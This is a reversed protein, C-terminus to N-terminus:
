QKGFYEELVAKRIKGKPAGKGTWAEFQRFGQLCLIEVGSVVGWGKRGEASQLLPTMYPRYAMDVVVGGGGGEGGGRGGLLTDPNFQIGETDPKTTLSDGPVTSVIISPQTPLNDLSSITQISYSTPFSSAVSEANAPTRNYLLIREAGLNHMAYIAARCTGGAGIVLATFSTLQSPTLHIQCAEKIAQWDTNEGRLIRKGNIRSPIITNIAGIVKADESISDLHPMIKLKLPITVSAGGFDDSKLIRLLGEDDTDTEYREYQHPLGLIDFGTNHLTPSVSASIPKGFLFFKKPPLLGILSRATNIERASLQGPAARSPLAPHTIPTLILNTIRSLQGTAGMNIALLPRAGPIANVKAAFLSLTSNDSISEATGVIKVVDGYNSCQDYKDKVIDGDWAMSGTWDHWSAIIHSNKKGKSVKDLLAGPWAVELDVYECGLRIGLQVMELYADSKDSLAFGGQEKSRVSYVIPLSTVLRIMSLQKAVYEVSPLGPSTPAKGTESLLDVRFEVADAGETLEAMKDLAPRIDPFTLSLFTTPTDEGLRPRNGDLASVFRFFRGCEGRMARHHGETSQGALPELTNFFEYNSCQQYWPERRKFVEAFSEGWNPRVATNGISDLYGEIAELERTVHVVIGGNSVHEMLAKRAGESEVIGGGLGIVHNGKKEKVFRELLDTETQRFAPWGNAAVYDSVSMKTHEAFIDDADTYEGELVSAAMRGIYTKGAGRM